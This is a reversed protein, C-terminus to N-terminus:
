ATTCLANLLKPFFPLVSIPRYNNTLLRDESKYIPIIKAMKLKDPFLGNALSINFVTALPQAIADIVEKVIKPSVGDVGKSSSSKLLNTINQIQIPDTHIVCMSNQFSGDLYDSIDGDVNSIKNALNPGINTFFKNFENAITMYDKVIKINIKMEKIPNKDSLDPGNVIHKITLWTKRINGKVM